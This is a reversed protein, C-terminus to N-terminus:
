VHSLKERKLRMYLCAAQLGDPWEQWHRYFRGRQEDIIFGWRKYMEIAKTNHAYLDLTIDKEKAFTLAYKWLQKGVGKGQFASDVYFGTLEYADGKDRVTIAGILKSDLFALWCKQISTNRLNNKLYDQTDSHAFIEKSFCDKTLGLADNTYSEVYTKQLLITYQDIDTSQAPRITIAM